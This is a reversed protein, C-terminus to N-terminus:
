AAARDAADRDAGVPDHDLDVRGRRRRQGVGLLLEVEVLEAVQHGGDHRDVLVDAAQVAVAARDLARRRRRRSALM